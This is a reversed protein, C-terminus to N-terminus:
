LGCLILVKMSSDEWSLMAVAQSSSSMPYLPTLPYHPGKRGTSLLCLATHGASPHARLAEDDILATSVESSLTGMQSIPDKLM